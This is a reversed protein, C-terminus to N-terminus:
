VSECWYETQSPINFQGCIPWKIDSANGNNGGFNNNDGWPNNFDQLPKDPQSPIEIDQRTDNLYQDMLDTLNASILLFILEFM